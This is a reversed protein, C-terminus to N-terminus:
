YIQHKRIIIKFFIWTSYKMKHTNYDIRLDFPNRISM